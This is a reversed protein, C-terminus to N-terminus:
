FAFNTVAESNDYLYDPHIDTVDNWCVLGMDDIHVTEFFDKDKLEGYIKDELLPFCNFVRIENNDFRILILYNNLPKVEVAYRM